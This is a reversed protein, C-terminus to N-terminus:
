VESTFISGAYRKLDRREDAATNCRSESRRCSRSLNSGTVINDDDAYAAHTCCSHEARHMATRMPDKGDVRDFPLAILCEFETGCM